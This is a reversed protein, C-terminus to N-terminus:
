FFAIGGDKKFMLFHNLAGITYISHGEIQTKFVSFFINNRYTTLNAIIPKGLLNILVNSGQEQNNLQMKTAAATSFEDITPNTVALLILVIGWIVIKKMLDIAGRTMISANFIGRLHKRVPIIYWICPDNPLSHKKTKPYQIGGIFGM